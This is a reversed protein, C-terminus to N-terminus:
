FGTAQKVIEEENGRGSMMGNKDGPVEPDYPLGYDNEPLPRGWNDTPWVVWYGGVKYRGNARDRQVMRKCKEMERLEGSSPTYAAQTCEQNPGIHGNVVAIFILPIWVPAGIIALGTFFVLSVDRCLKWASIEM